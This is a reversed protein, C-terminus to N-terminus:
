DRSATAALQAAVAAVDAGAPVVLWRDPTRTDIMMVARKPCVGLCRTEIVGGSAKRGKGLAMAKRLAKALPKKGTDGFGGDLKQSCKGCVLVAGQWSSRVQKFDSPGLDSAV